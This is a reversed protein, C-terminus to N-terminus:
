QCAPSASACVLALTRRSLRSALTAAAARALRSPRPAPPPCPPRPAHLAPPMSPPISKPPKRPAPARRPRTTICSTHPPPHRPSSRPPPRHHLRPGAVSTRTLRTRRSESVVRTRTPSEEGPKQRTQDGAVRSVARAEGARGGRYSPLVQADPDLVLKTTTLYRSAQSATHWLPRPAGAVTCSGGAHLRGVCLGARISGCDRLSGGVCLGLSTLGTGADSTMREAPGRFSAHRRRKMTGLREDAVRSSRRRCLRAAM